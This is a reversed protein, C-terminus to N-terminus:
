AFARLTQRKEKLVVNGTSLDPHFINHFMKSYTRSLDTKYIYDKCVTLKMINALFFFEHFHITMFINM